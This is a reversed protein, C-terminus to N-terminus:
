LDNGPRRLMESLAQQVGTPDRYLWYLVMAGLLLAFTILSIGYPNPLGKSQKLERALEDELRRWGALRTGRDSAGTISSVLRM